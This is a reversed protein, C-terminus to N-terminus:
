QRCWAESIREIVHMRKREESKLAKVIVNEDEKRLVRDYWRMISAKAM